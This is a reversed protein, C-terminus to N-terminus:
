APAEPHFRPPRGGAIVQAGFMQKTAHVWALTDQGIQRLMKVEQHTYVLADTPWADKSLDDAMVWIAESLIESWVKVAIIAGDDDPKPPAPAPAEGGLIQLLAAKQDALVQKLELTLVGVPARCRLREGIVELSIGRTRCEKILDHATM